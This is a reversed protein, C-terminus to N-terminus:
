KIVLKKVAMGQEGVIRVFYTGQAYGTLDLTIRGGAVTWQGSTRGNLDVLSVTANGELGGITVSTTAPNPYLTVDSYAVEDIGVNGAFTATLTIDATVIMTRVSDTVQDSWQVFHYGPLGQATLTVTAGEGYTGAGLVTGMTEDYNVTVTYTTPQPVNDAEFTATLALDATVATTYPNATSVQQGNATWAVFHYGTNATATFTVSTGANVTGSPTVTAAGMTADATAASVTYTTPQPTSSAQFTATLALNSTVTTTYPNATSVQTTGDMWAVFTYGTAPTATFTVSTGANVTGSPSVTASGMTADASTASVTYTTPQPVVTSDAGCVGFRVDARNTSGSSSSGSYPNSDSSYYRVAGNWASHSAYYTSSNEYAGSVEVTLVVHSTGDYMFPNSFVVTNWGTVFNIPGQYVLRDSSGVLTLTSDTSDTSHRLYINATYSNSPSSYTYNFSVSTLSMAMNGLEHATYVQQTYSNNYYHNIPSYNTTNASYPTTAASIELSSGNTCLTTTIVTASASVSGSCNADIRVQYVTEADLGTFAYPSSADTVTQLVTGNEDLLTLTADDVLGFGYEWAVSFGESSTNGLRINTITDTCITLPQITIDDIYLTYGSYTGYARFAVYKGTGTYSSLNVNFEQWQSVTPNCDEIHTFTSTDSPDTMVGVELRAYSYPRYVWFNVYLDSLDDFRPTVALEYQSNNGVDFRLSNGTRVTATSLSPANPYNSYLSIRTWCPNLDVGGGYSDFNEVFPLDSHTIVVCNRVTVYFVVTDSGYSNTAVCTVTDVGGATYNFTAVSDNASITADGHSEMTSSWTFTLGSTNGIILHATYDVNENADVLSPADVSLMPAFASRVTVDDIIMGTGGNSINRFAIYITEGSYAALSVTRLEFWGAHSEQFVTDTFSALDATTTSVLVQYKPTGNGSGEGFHYFQLIFDSGDSPLELAPSILWDDTTSSNYIGAAGPPSVQENSYTYYHWIYTGTHNLPSVITWCDFSSAASFQEIFPFNSVTGCETRFSVTSSPEEDTCLATVRVTYNTNANLDGLDYETVTTNGAVETWSTDGEAQYEVRFNTEGNGAVWAVHASDSGMARGIVNPAMCSELDVNVILSYSYTYIGNSLGTVTAPNIPSSGSTTLVRTNDSFGLWYGSSGSTKHGVAILALNRGDSVFVTDFPVSTSNPGQIIHVQSAVQVFDSFPVNSSPTLADLSTNAMYLDVDWEGNGSQNYWTVGVIQGANGVESAPFLAQSYSYTTNNNLPSSSMSGSNSPNNGGGQGSPTVFSRTVTSSLDGGCENQLLLQYGHGMALNSFFAETGDTVVTESFSNDTPDLLTVTVDGHDLGLGHQYDWTVAVTTYTTQVNVNVVPYCVIDTTFSTSAWTSSNTACDGSLYVYYTTSSSLGSFVYNTDSLTITTADATADTPDFPHDAYKLTWGTHEDRGAFDLEASYPGVNSIALATPKRCLDDGLQEYGFTTKPLFSQRTGSTATTGSTAYISLYTSGTSKGYFYMYGYANSTSTYAINVLLHDGNYLYPTDFEIEVKNGASMSLTGSFVTTFTGSHFSSTSYVQLNSMEMISVVFTGSSLWSTSEQTYFTMSSIEAGLMETLSDAPYLIQQRQSYDAYWGNFPIYTNTATGDAVTLEDAQASMPLLLAALFAFIYLKKM